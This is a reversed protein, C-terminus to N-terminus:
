KHTHTHIHTHTHAIGARINSHVHQLSPVNKGRSENTPAQSMDAKDISTVRMNEFATANLM